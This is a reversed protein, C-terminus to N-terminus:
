DGVRASRGFEGLLLLTIVARSDFRKKGEQGSATTSRRGYADRLRVDAQCAPERSILTCRRGHAGRAPDALRHLADLVRAEEGAAPREDVVMWGDRIGMVRRDRSRGVGGR